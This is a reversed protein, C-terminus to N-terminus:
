ADYYKMSENMKMLKEGERERERSIMKVSAAAYNENQM